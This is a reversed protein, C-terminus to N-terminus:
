TLGNFLVHIYFYSGFEGDFKCPCVFRVGSRRAHGDRAGSDCMSTFTVALSVMLNVHICLVCGPADPMGMEQGQCM